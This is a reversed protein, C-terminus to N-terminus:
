SCSASLRTAQAAFKPFLSCINSPTLSKRTTSYTDSHSVRIASSHFLSRHNTSLIIPWRITGRSSVFLSFPLSDLSSSSPLFDLSYSFPLSDLSLKTSSSSSRVAFYHPSYPFTTLSHVYFLSQSTYAYCLFLLSTLTRFSSLFSPALTIPLLILLSISSTLTSQKAVLINILQHHILDLILCPQLLEDSKTSLSCELSNLSTKLSFHLQLICSRRM